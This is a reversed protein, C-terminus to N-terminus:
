QELGLVQQGEGLRVGDGRRGEAPEGRPQGGVKEIHPQFDVALGPGINGLLFSLFLGRNTSFFDAGKEHELSNFEVFQKVRTEDMFFESVLGRVSDPKITFHEVPHIKRVTAKEEKGPWGFYGMSSKVIFPKKWYTEVEAQEMIGQYQMFLNDQRVGPKNVQVNYGEPVLATIPVKVSVLKSLDLIGELAQYAMLRMTRQDSLLLSLWLSTTPLSPTHDYTIMFLLMGVAM